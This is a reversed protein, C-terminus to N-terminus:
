EGAKMLREIMEDKTISKPLDVQMDNAIDLLDSKTLAELQARTVSQVVPREYPVVNASPAHMPEGPKPAPANRGREADAETAVVAPLSQTPGSPMVKGDKPAIYGHDVWLKPNMVVADAPLDEGPNCVAISRDQRQVRCHKLVVFEGPAM